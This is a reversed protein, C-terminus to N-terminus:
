QTPDICLKQGKDVKLTLSATAPAPCSAGVDVVDVVKGDHDDSCSVKKVQTRIDNFQICAGDFDNAKTDFVGAVALVILLAVGAVLVIRWVNRRVAGGSPSTSTFRPGLAERLLAEAQPRKQSWRITYPAGGRVLELRHDAGSVTLTASAVDAVQVLHATPTSAALQDATMAANKAREREYTGRRLRLWATVILWGLIGFAPLRTIPGKVVVIAGDYVYMDNIGKRHSAKVGDIVGLLRGTRTAAPAAGTPPPPAPWAAAAPAPPAPWAAPEPTPEAPSTATPTPGPPAAAAAVKLPVLRVNCNGCRVAGPENASGCRRCRVGADETM